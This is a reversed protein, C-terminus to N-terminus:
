RCNLVPVPQLIQKMKKGWKETQLHKLWAVIISQCFFFFFYTKFAFRLLVCHSTLERKGVRRMVGWIRRMGGQFHAVTHCPEFVAALRPSSCCLLQFHLPPLMRPLHVAGDHRHLAVTAIVKVVEKTPNHLTPTHLVRKRRRTLPTGQTCPRLLLLVPLFIKM